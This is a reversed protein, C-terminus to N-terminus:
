GGAQKKLVREIIMRSWPTYANPNKKMDSSLAKMDMWKWGKVEEPDPNAKGEYTGYFVHDYEHETLGNGVPTEYEFEFAQKLECDFGMEEKLRRHAAQDATEGPYPHSCTTNSWQGGAHYKSDARQQLMTEGKSNFVCISISRHLMGKGQHAKLKGEIGIQKDNSDVLIVQPEMAKM